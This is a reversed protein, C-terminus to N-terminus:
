MKKKGSNWLKGKKSARQKEKLTETINTFSVLKVVFNPHIKCLANM